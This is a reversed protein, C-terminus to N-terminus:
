SLSSESFGPSFSKHCSRREICLEGIKCCMEGNFLLGQTIYGLQIKAELYEQKSLISEQRKIRVLLHWRQKGLCVRHLEARVSVGQLIYRHCPTPSLVKMTVVSDSVLM